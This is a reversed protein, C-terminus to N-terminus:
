KTSPLPQTESDTISVYSWSNTSMSYQVIANTFSYTRNPSEDGQLDDVSPAKIQGGLFSLSMNEGSGESWSCTPRRGSPSLGNIPMLSWKKEKINYSYLSKFLRLDNTAYSYGGYLYVVGEVVVASADKLDNPPREGTQEANAAHVYFTESTPDFMWMVGSVYILITDNIKVVFRWAQKSSPTLGFPLAIKIPESLIVTMNSGSVIPFDTASTAMNPIMNSSLNLENYIKRTMQQLQELEDTLDNIKKQNLKVINGLDNNKTLGIFSGLHSILPIAIPAALQFIWPIMSKKCVDDSHCGDIKQIGTNVTADRDMSGGTSSLKKPGRLLASVNSSTLIILLYGLCIWKRSSLDNM